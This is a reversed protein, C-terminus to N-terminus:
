ANVIAVASFAVKATTPVGWMATSRAPLEVVGRERFFQVYARNCEAYDEKDTLLMTAVVIRDPASGAAGLIAAVNELAGTTEDFASGAVVAGTATDNSAGTGSVHVLGNHIVARSFAGPPPVGEVESIHRVGAAASSATSLPAKTCLPSIGEAAARGHHHHLALVPTRAHLARPLM